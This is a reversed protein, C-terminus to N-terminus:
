RKRRSTRRCSWILRAPSKPRRSRSRKACRRPLPRPHFSRPTGNRSQGSCPCSTSSSIRNKTCGIWRPRDTIAVLPARDLVRRGRRHAFQNCWAWTSLCVGAKGTLRGHVDAMFAAGQEHRVAIFRIQSIVLSNLVDADGRRTRLSGSCERMKWCRLLLDSGKM